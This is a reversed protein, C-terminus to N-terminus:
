KETWRNHMKQWRQDKVSISHHQNNDNDNNNNNTTINATSGIGSRGQQMTPLIPEMIGQQHYGLADGQQWGMKKLMENGRGKVPTYVNIIDTEIEEELEKQQQQQLNYKELHKNNERRLKARDITGTTSSTSSLPPSAKENNQQYAFKKLEKLREQRQLQHDDISNKNREIKKLLLQNSHHQHQNNENNNNDQNIASTQCKECPWDNEHNHIELLTDGLQIRDGHKISHPSSSTKKESLRIGNLFTGNQSGVDVLSFQKKDMDYYIQCHYKSIEMDPIRWRREDWLHKDRGITIGNADVLKVTSEQLIKSNLVVLRCCADTEPEGNEKTAEEKEEEDTMTATTTIDKVQYNNNFSNNDESTTIYVPIYQQLATDYKYYTGTMTDYWLNKEENYLYREYDYIETTNNENNNINNNNNSNNNNEIFTTLTSKQKRQCQKKVELYEDLAQDFDTM